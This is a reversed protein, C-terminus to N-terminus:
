HENKFKRMSEPRRPQHFFFTCEPPWETLIDAEPRIDCARKLVKLISRKMKDRKM